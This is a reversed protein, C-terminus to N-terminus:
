NRPTIDIRGWTVHVCCAHRPARELREYAFELPYAYPAIVDVRHVSMGVFPVIQEIQTEGPVDGLVPAGTQPDVVERIARIGIASIERETIVAIERSALAGHEEFDAIARM